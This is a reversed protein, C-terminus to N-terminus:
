KKWLVTEYLSFGIERQNDIVLTSKSKLKIEESNLFKRGFFLRLFPYKEAISSLKENKIVAPEDFILQTKLQNFVISRDSIQVDQILKGNWFVKKLPQKGIWEIWIVCHNESLFRGWKLESIPLKWPFFNMKLVEAYGLGSFIKDTMKVEVMAKPLYCNWLLQRHKQNLLKQTPLPPEIEKWRGSVNLKKSSFVGKEECVSSSLFSRQITSGDQSLIMASYPIKVGFIQLHADYLIVVNGQADILDFYYKKLCFLKM